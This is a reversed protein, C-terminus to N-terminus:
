NDALVRWRELFEGASIEGRAYRQELMRIARSRPLRPEPRNRILSVMIGIVLALFAHGVIAGVAAWAGPGSGFVHSIM